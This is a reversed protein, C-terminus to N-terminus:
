CAPPARNSYPGPSNCPPLGVSVAIVIRSPAPSPTIQDSAPFLDLPQTLYSEPTTRLTSSTVGVLHVTSVTHHHAPFDVGMLHSDHHADPDTSHTHVVTHAHHEGDNHAHEASPHVHLGLGCLLALFHICVMGVRCYPSLFYRHRDQM